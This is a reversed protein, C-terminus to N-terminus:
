FPKALGLGYSNMAAHDTGTFPLKVFADLALGEVGVWQGFTLYAGFLGAHFSREIRAIPEREGAMAIRWPTGQFGSYGASLWLWSAPGYGLTLSTHLEEGPDAFRGQPDGGNGVWGFRHKLEITGNLAVNSRLLGTFGLAGGADIQGEGALAQNTYPYEYSTPAKLRAYATLGFRETAALQYGAYLNVDGPRRARTFFNNTTNSYRVYRFMPWFVGIVVRDLPSYLLDLTAEHTILEGGVVQGTRSRFPVRQGDEHEPAFRQEDRGAFNSDAESYIYGLKAWGSGKQPVFGQASASASSTFTMLCAAIAAGRSASHSNM